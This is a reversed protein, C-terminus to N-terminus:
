QIAELRKEYERMFYERDEDDADNLLDILAVEMARFREASYLEVQAAALQKLLAAASNVLQAKQNLPTKKDDRADALLEKTSAFQLVLEHKLDMDELTPLRKEIRSKLTILEDVGYQDLPVSDAPLIM